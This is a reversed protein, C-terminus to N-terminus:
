HLMSMAKHRINNPWINLRVELLLQARQDRQQQRGLLQHHLLDVARADAALLQELVELDVDLDVLAVLQGLGLGHELYGGM